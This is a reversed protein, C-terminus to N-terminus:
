PEDEPGTLPGVFLSIDAIEAEPAAEKLKEVIERKLFNLEMLWGSDAVAVKLVGRNLSVPRTRAAIKPGVADPWASFLLANESSGKLPGEAFLKKLIGDIKEM